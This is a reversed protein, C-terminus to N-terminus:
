GELLKAYAPHRGAYAAMFPCRAVAKGGSARIAEFVGKALRSGIGQGSLREPVETHTLTLRDGDREYYALALGGEVPMEFRSLEPRDIVDASMANEPTAPEDEYIPASPPSDWDGRMRM